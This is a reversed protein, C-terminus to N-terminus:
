QSDNELGSLDKSTSVVFGRMVMPLHCVGVPPLITVTSGSGEGEFIYQGSWTVQGYLGIYTGHPPWAIGTFTVTAIRATGSPCSGQVHCGLVAGADYQVLGSRHDYEKRLVLPFQSTDPVVSLVRLFAPDFAVTTAVGDAHADCDVIIDLTFPVPATLTLSSPSLSLSAQTLAVREVPMAQSGAGMLMDLLALAILLLWASSIGRLRQGLGM